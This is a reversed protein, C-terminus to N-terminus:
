ISARAICSEGTAPNKASAVVNDTGVRNAIRRNVEFSGSPATTTRAGSFVTVGNDKIVVNWRQGVRNSDVEFQTEIRGDDHKVALKSVTRASCAGPRTVKAGGGKAYAPASAITGLALASMIGLAAARNSLKSM